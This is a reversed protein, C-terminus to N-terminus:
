RQNRIEELAIQKDAYKEIERDVGFATLSEAAKFFNRENNLSSEVEIVKGSEMAENQALITRYIDGLMWSESTLSEVKGSVVKVNVEGRNDTTANINVLGIIGLAIIGIFTRIKTKM